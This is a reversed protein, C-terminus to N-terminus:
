IAVVRLIGGTLDTVTLKLSDETVHGAILTAEAPQPGGGVLQSIPRTADKPLWAHRHTHGSIVIKVGAKLLLPLWEDRCAGAVTGYPQDGDQGSWWLPIHCFLVKHPAAAFWPETTIKELWRTQEARMAAFATMGALVPHDDPKDEGTDMVLAALPGSRYAYYFRKGPTGTFRHLDRAAAGRVDHNGRVYVLPTAAAIPMGGPCLYQEAMQAPNHNDNVQDGNWLLFDPQMSQTRGHLTRILETNEHTDNWVVFRTEAAAPDPAKFSFTPSTVIAGPIITYADRFDIPRLVLRYHYRQGPKLLPLTFKLVHRDFQMLGSDDCAVRIGLEPTEGIELYGSAPGDLAQLIAMSDVTAGFVAPPRAAAASVPGAPVEAAKASALWPVAGTCLSTTLFKRRHM